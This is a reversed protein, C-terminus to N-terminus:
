IGKAYFRDMYSQTFQRVHLAFERIIASNRAERPYCLYQELPAKSNFPRWTLRENMGVTFLPYVLAVGTGSAVFEIVSNVADTSVVTRPKIKHQDFVADVLQGTRSDLDFSVFDIGDLDHPQVTKLESIPHDKPAICILPMTVLPEVIFNPDEIKTSSIAVDIKRTLLDEVLWHARRSQIQFFVNPCERLFSAAIRQMPAGALGPPVGVVLRGKDERKLYEIATEVQKVGSFIREVEQYLFISQDTPVLRRKKREFLRLGNEIELQMLLKSAAPQSIGLAEAAQSVTGLEIVAKFIEVQRLNLARAM